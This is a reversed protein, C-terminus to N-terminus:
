LACVSSPSFKMCSDPVTSADQPCPASIAQGCKSAGSACCRCHMSICAQSSGWRADKEDYGHDGDATLGAMAEGSTKLGDMPAVVNTISSSSNTAAQTRCVTYSIVVNKVIRRLCRVTRQGWRGAWTRVEPTPRARMYGTVSLWSRLRQRLDNFLV